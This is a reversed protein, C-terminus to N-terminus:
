STIHNIHYSTIHHAIGFKGDFHRSMEIM